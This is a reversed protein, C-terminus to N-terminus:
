KQELLRPFLAEGRVVKGGPKLGGWQTLEAFNNWEEDVKGELEVIMKEATAPMAPWLMMALHRLGEMLQYLLPAVDKGEKVMKWPQEDDITKDLAAVLEDTVRMAEDFRYDLLAAQYRKWYEAVGFRDEAVAPVMGDVFKGAMTLVRAQLNGVGNALRSSYWEEFLKKSYDGDHYSALGGLLFHRTADVGYDAVLQMPNIVNGVSKSMKAGDVTIYGHIFIQRSNPVDASMLMAQWMAAQQRLNDKGAVQVAPWFDAWRSQPDPWGHTSIYNVLADFWVYMVQEADDPVAIGWPMKSALRSISFDQLGGAVFSKVENYRGDPLVFKPHAEYFDLLPQQYKSFRFFYNEEQILEIKYTPHIPCKGDELESDTKELECGVCYKVEYAKKYIDGAVACRRWFEQAAAIHNADTTRIFNTYSLNLAPKLEHFKAAYGDCYIKPDLGAEVAKQWIKQGHEDTGTNFVVEMGAMKQARALMDAQVIELAFGIHPEANVYPLTTTISYTGPM